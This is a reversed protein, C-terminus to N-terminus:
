RAAAGADQEGVVTTEDVDCFGFGTEGTQEDVFLKCKIGEPCEDDSACVAPAANTETAGPSQPGGLVIETEGDAVDEVADDVEDMPEPEVDPSPRPSAPPSPEPADTDDDDAGACAGLLSALLIFLHLNGM